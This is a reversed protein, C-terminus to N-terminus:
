LISVFTCLEGCCGCPKSFLFICTVMVAALSLFVSISIKWLEVAALGGILCEFLSLEIIYM